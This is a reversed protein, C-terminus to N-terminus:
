PTRTCRVRASGGRERNARVPQLKASLRRPTDRQRRIKVPPPFRLIRSALYPQLFTLNDFENFIKVCKTWNCQEYCLAEYQKRRKRRSPLRLEPSSAFKQLTSTENPNFRSYFEGIGTKWRGQVFHYLNFRTRLPFSLVALKEKSKTRSAFIWKRYVIM